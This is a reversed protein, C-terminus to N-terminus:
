SRVFSLLRALWCGVVVEVVEGSEDRRVRVTWNGPPFHDVARPCPLLWTDAGHLLLPEAHGQGLPGSLRAYLAGGHPAEITLQASFEANVYVGVLDDESSDPGIPDPVFSRNEDSREVVVDNDRVIVAGYRGAYRGDGVHPLTDAPSQYHLEIADPTDRSPVVRMALETARDVLPGLAPLTPSPAALPATSPLELAATLLTDAMSEVDAVYNLVIVVSVRPGAAYLRTSRWGRMAGGHCTVDVGHFTRHNLGFGYHAPTGDRFHQQTSLRRYLSRHDDRTADIHREYAIMDDLSAVVGCDGHSRFRTVAPVFGHDVDGEYPVVGGPLAAYDDVVQATAMGAPEFVARAILDSLPGGTCEELIEAIIRFNTNSYSYSTGPSFQTTRMASRLLDSAPRGLEDEPEAGCMMGLALYDRLGSQNNCLDIMRPAEDQLLPLKARVDPDLVHLDPFEALLAACTFQKSISCMPTLADTSFPTRASVDSYGWAQRFVVSGERIVAAAGGPGQRGDLAEALARAFRDATM